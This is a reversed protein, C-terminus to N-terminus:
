LIFFLGHVFNLKGKYNKLEVGDRVRERAWDRAAATTFLYSEEASSGPFVKQELKSIRDNVNLYIFVIGLLFGMICFFFLFILAFRSVRDNFRKGSNSMIDVPLSEASSIFLYWSNLAKAGINTKHTTYLCKHLIVKRVSSFGSVKQKIM